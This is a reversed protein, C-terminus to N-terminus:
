GNKAKKRGRSSQSEQQEVLYRILSPDGTARCFAATCALPFPREPGGEGREGSGSSWSDMHEKTVPVGLSESLRAAVEYGSLRSRRLANRVLSPITAGMTRKRSEPMSMVLVNVWPSFSIISLSM